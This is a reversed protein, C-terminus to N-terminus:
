SVVSFGPFAARIARVAELEHVPNVCSWLFSVAIAEVRHNEILRRASTVADDSALAQLIKGDRDIREPVGAIWDRDILGDPPVLWGDRPVRRVRAIPVLDEFGGTTILGVRRGTRAAIVNTVATSGLGFRAVQPLLGELTTGARPAVLRCGATVREGGPPHTPPRRGRWGRTGDSLVGDTFTGGVDVGICYAAM